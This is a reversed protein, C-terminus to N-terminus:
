ISARYKKSYKILGVAEFFRILLFYKVKFKM